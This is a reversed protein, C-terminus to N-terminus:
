SPKVPPPFDLLTIKLYDVAGPSGQPPFYLLVGGLRDTFPFGYADTVRQLAAAWDNYYNPNKQAGSFQILPYKVAEAFWESSTWRGIDKGQIPKPVKQPGKAVSGVFGMHLGALFDGVIWGFIDDTIGNTTEHHGAYTITYPPNAGYIGVRENFEGFTSTITIPGVISASGKFEILGTKANLDVSLNYEQKATIGSGGKKGSYLGAVQTKYNLGAIYKLYDMWDHYGGKLGPGIVRVFDKDNWVGAHNGSLGLLTAVNNTFAAGSSWKLKAVMSGNAWTSAEIPMSVFDIASLDMNNNKDGFINPEIYAYPTHYNADHINNPGPQYGNGLGQLQADGYNFYIRGNTFDNLAVNAVQGLEPFQPLTSELQNLPYGKDGQLLVTGNAGYQNPGFAGNLFQVWVNKRNTKNEFIIPVTPATM